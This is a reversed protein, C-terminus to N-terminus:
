SEGYFQPKPFKVQMEMYKEQLKKFEEPKKDKVAMAKERIPSLAEAGKISNVSEGAHCVLLEIDRQDKNMGDDLLMQAVQAATWKGGETSFLPLRSHGHCLIYMKAKSSFQGLGGQGGQFARKYLNLDDIYRGARETLETDGDLKPSWLFNQEIPM